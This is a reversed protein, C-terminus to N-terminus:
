RMGRPWGTVPTKSTTFNQKRSEGDWLKVRRSYKIHRKARTLEWGGDILAEEVTRARKRAQPADEHEFVECTQSNEEESSDEVIIQTDELLPM